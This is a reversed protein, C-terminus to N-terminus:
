KRSKDFPDRGQYKNIKYMVSKRGNHRAILALITFILSIIGVVLAIWSVVSRVTPSINPFLADKMGTFGWIDIVLCIAFSVFWNRAMRSLNGLLHNENEIAAALEDREKRSMKNSM